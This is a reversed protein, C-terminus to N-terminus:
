KRARGRARPNARPHPPVEPSDSKDGTESNYPPIYSGDSDSARLDHRRVTCTTCTHPAYEDKGRPSSSLPDAASALLGKTGSQQSDHKYNTVSRANTPMARRTCWCLTRSCSGTCGQSMESSIFSWERELSQISYIVNNLLIQCNELKIYPLTPHM